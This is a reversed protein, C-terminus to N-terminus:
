CCNKESKNGSSVVNKSPPLKISANEANSVLEQDIDSLLLKTMQRFADDVNRGEKSSTEIFPIDFQDSYAQVYDTKVCRQSELDLKTGIILKKANKEALESVDKLWDNLNTFSEMNTIDYVLCIGHAGRYYTNVITRFREQGASDWINLKVTKGYIEFTRVKFDVGITNIYNDTYSQDAFRRLLCSKGVGSDGIIIIKFVFDAAM